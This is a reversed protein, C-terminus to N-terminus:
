RPFGERCQCAAISGSGEDSLANDPCADCEAAAAGAYTNAACTECQATNSVGAKASGADCPTCAFEEEEPTAVYGPM